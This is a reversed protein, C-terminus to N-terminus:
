TIMTSLVTDGLVSELLPARRKLVTVEQMNQPDEMGMLTSECASVLSNRSLRPGDVNTETGAAKQL